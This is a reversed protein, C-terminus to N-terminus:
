LGKDIAKNVEGVVASVIWASVRPSVFTSLDCCYYQSISPNVEELHNFSDIDDKCKIPKTNQPPLHLAVLGKVKEPDLNPLEYSEFWEGEKAQPFFGEASGSLYLALGQSNTAMWESFPIWFQPMTFVEDSPFEPYDYLGNAVAGPLINYSSWLSPDIKALKALTSSMKSGLEYSSWFLPNYDEENCDPVCFGMTDLYRDPDKDVLFFATLGSKCHCRSTLVKCEDMFADQAEESLVIDGHVTCVHICALLVVLAVLTHM